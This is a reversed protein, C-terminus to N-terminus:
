AQAIRVLDHKCLWLLTRVMHRRREAPLREILAKVTAPGNEALHQITDSVDAEPSVVDKAISVMRLRIRERLRESTMGPSLSVVRDPGIHTSPYSRFVSFPCDRGPHRLIQSM